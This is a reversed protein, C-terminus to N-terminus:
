EMNYPKPRLFSVNSFPMLRMSRNRRPWLVCWHHQLISMAMIRMVQNWGPATLFKPCKATLQTTYGSLMPGSPKLSAFHGAFHSNFTELNSIRRSQNLSGPTSLFTVEWKSIAHSALSIPKLFWGQKGSRWSSEWCIFIQCWQNRLHMQKYASIRSGTPVATPVLLDIVVIQLFGMNAWVSSRKLYM